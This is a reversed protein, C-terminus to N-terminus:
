KQKLNKLVKRIYRQSVGLQINYDYVKKYSKLEHYLFMIKDDVSISSDKLVLDITLKDTNNQNAEKTAKKFNELFYYFLDFAGQVAKEEVVALQESTGCAYELAQLILAFRPIYRKLKETAGKMQESYENQLDIATCIDTYYRDTSNETFTMLGSQIYGYQDTDTKIDLLVNIINAYEQKIHEPIIHTSPYPIKTRNTHCFLLRNAFGTLARDKTFFEKVKVPQTGGLLSVFPRRISTVKNGTRNFKTKSQNWFSLWMNEESGKNYRNFNQVLTTLEDQFSLIGRPNQKLIDALAEPTTDMTIHTHYIPLAPLQQEREKRPTSLIEDYQKKAEMYEREHQDDRDDLPKRAFDLAPTKGIGTSAVIAMYITAPEIYNLVKTVLSNGIAASAVTLIGCSLLESPFQYGESVENIINQLKTPFVDIPFEPVQTAQTATHILSMGGKLPPPIDDPDTITRKAEIEKQLIEDLFSVGHKEIIKCVDKEDTHVSLDIYYISHEYSRKRSYEIGTNDNDMLLYVCKSRHRLNQILSDDLFSNECNFCIANIGKQSFHYDIALTDTEGACILVIDNDVDLSSRNFIYKSGDKFGLNLSKYKPLSYPQKVKYNGNLPDELNDTILIGINSPNYTFKTGKKTPRSELPHIGKSILYKDTLDNAGIKKKLYNMEAHAFTWEKIITQDTYEKKGFEIKKFPNGQEDYLKIDFYEGLLICADLFKKDYVSMVHTVPEAGDEIDLKGSFNKTKLINNKGRYITMGGSEKFGCTDETKRIPTLQISYLDQLLSIFDDISICEQLTQVDIKQLNTM